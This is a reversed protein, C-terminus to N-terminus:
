LLKNLATRLNAIVVPIDEMQATGVSLRFWNSDRTAGFAYFPVIALYAEQILYNAVAETSDLIQGDATRRGVVDVQVTLYMAAEPEISDIAIGESKLEQIGKHFGVLRAEIKDCIDKNYSEIAGHNELYESTAKQEAKPSWAGVHGLISKMKQIIKDPGFAWGVRVGTAAFAKSIGDIYITYRAMEPYLSVPDFHQTEGHTLMWYIQDYLLYLPKDDAGRRANEELVMECIGKLGDKTFCTGTPNLPSCVAILTASKVHPELDARSPMFKNESTTPVFVSKGHSLHTYHNNNWSPVPFVVTDEPDILTQYAAYILPRAGGAILIQDESYDLNGFKKLYSSVSKRLEPIGNAAPYNTHGEEYAKIIEQLLEAPIPFISPNFDGITMNKVPEGQAIRAKVEGALKIIESGVLAEAMRSVKLEKEETQNM